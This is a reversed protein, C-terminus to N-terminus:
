TLITHSQACIIGYDEQFVKTQTHNGRHFKGPISLSPFKGPGNSENIFKVTEM